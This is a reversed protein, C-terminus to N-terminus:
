HHGAFLFAILVIAVLGGIIYHPTWNTEGQSSSIGAKAKDTNGMKVETRGAKTSTTHTITVANGSESVEKTTRTLQNLTTVLVGVDAHLEHAKTAADIVGKAYDQM